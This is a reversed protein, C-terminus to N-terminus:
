FSSILLILNGDLVLSANRTGLLHGQEIQKVAEEPSISDPVIYIIQGLASATKLIHPFPPCQVVRCCQPRLEVLLEIL